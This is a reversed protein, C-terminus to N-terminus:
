SRITLIRDILIKKIDSHISYLLFYGQIEIPKVQIVAFLLEDTTIGIYCGEGSLIIKELFIIKEKHNM